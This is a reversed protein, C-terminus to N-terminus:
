WQWKAMPQNPKLMRKWFPETPKGFKKYIQDVRIANM